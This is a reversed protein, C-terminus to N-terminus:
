FTVRRPQNAGQVRAQGPLPPATTVQLRGVRVMEIAGAVTGAVGAFSFVGLTALTRVMDASINGALVIAAGHEVVLHAAQVNAPGGASTPDKAIAEYEGTNADYVILFPAVALTPAVASRLSPGQAAVAIKGSVQNAGEIEQPMPPLTTGGSEVLVGAQYQAVVRQVSGFAGTYVRIGSARLRQLSRPGISGVIVARAGARALENTASLGATLTGAGSNTESSFAKTRPDYFVFVPATSFIPAVQAGRNAGTAAVAIINTVVTNAAVVPPSSPRRQTPGGSILVHINRRKGDRIVQLKVSDHLQKQAIVALADSVTDVDINDIRSIVDGIRLGATRAPAAKYVGSVLVGDTIALGLQDASAPSLPRLWIGLPPAVSAVTKPGKATKKSGVIGHCTNCAGWDPHPTAQSMRIPPATAITMTSAAAKAGAERPLLQHCNTCTGWDPHRAAQGKFIQPATASQVLASSAFRHGGRGQRFATWGIVAVALLVVVAVFPKFQRM